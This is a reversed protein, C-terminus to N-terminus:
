GEEKPPLQRSLVMELIKCQKVYMDRLVYVCLAFGAFSADIEKPLGVLGEDVGVALAPLALSASLFLVFLRSNRAISPPM